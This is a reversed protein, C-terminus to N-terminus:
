VTSFAPMLKSIIFSFIRKNQAHKKKRPVMLKWVMFHIPVHGPYKQTPLTQNLAVYYTRAYEESDEDEHYRVVQYILRVRLAGELAQYTM